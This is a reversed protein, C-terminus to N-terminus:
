KRVAPQIVVFDLLHVKELLIGNGLLVEYINTSEESYGKGVIVGVEGIYSRHWSPIAGKDELGNAEIRILDGVSILNRLREVENASEAIRFSRNRFVYSNEQEVGTKVREM